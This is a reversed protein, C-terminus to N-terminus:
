FYKKSDLFFNQIFFCIILILLVYVSQFFLDSTYSGQFGLLNSIETNEPFVFNPDNSIEEPNFVQESEGCILEINQDM